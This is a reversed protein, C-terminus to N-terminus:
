RVSSTIKAQDIFTQFLPLGGVVDQEPHWQVGLIFPYDTAELAEIIGDDAVASCKLGKGLVKVAQHHSTPVNLRQKKYIDMLKTGPEIQVEHWDKLKWVVESSTHKVVSEPLHTAIDQILSGGFAINILQAGACLGLVPLKPRKMLQKILFLDFTAQESNMINVVTPHTSEGYFSPPYDPSGVLIMGDLRNLLFELESEPMVPVFVPIGGAALIPEYNSAWSGVQRPPGADFGMNVGILPKM